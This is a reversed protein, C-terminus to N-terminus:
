KAEKTAKKIAKYLEKCTKRYLKKLRPLDHPYDDAGIEIRYIAEQISPLRRAINYTTVSYRVKGRSVLRKLRKDGYNIIYQVTKCTQESNM